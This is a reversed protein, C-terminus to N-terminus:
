SADEDDVRTPLQIDSINPLRMRMVVVADVVLSLVVGAIISVFLVASEVWPQNSLILMVVVFVGLKVLWGGLVIAFFIPVYLADGYWRNAFLISAATIGLFLFSLLVGVLGSWLGNAGAIAFGAVAAVLALVAAALASWILTGRLIPTSSIPSPTM